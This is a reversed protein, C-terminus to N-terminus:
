RGPPVPGSGHWRARHRVPTWRAPRSRAPPWRRHADVCSRHPFACHCGAPSSAAGHPTRPLTLIAPRVEARDAALDAVLGREIRAVIAVALEAVQQRRDAQELQLLVALRGVHARQWFFLYHRGSAPLARIGSGADPVSMEVRDPTDNGSANGALFVRMNFIQPRRLELLTRLTSHHASSIPRGYSDMSTPPLWPPVCVGSYWAIFGLPRTGTISSWPKGSHSDFAM